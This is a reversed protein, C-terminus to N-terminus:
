DDKKHGRGAGYKTAVAGIATAGTIKLFETAEPADLGQNALYVVSILCLIAYLFLGVLGFVEEKPM